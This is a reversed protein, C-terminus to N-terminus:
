TCFRSLLLATVEDSIAKPIEEPIGDALGDNLSDQPKGCDGPQVGNGLRRMREKGVKRCLEVHSAPLRLSGSIYKYEVAFSEPWSAVSFSSM